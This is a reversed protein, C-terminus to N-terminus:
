DDLVWAPPLVPPVDVPQTAEDDDSLVDLEEPERPAEPDRMLEEAKLPLHRLVRKRQLPM